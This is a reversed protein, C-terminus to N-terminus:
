AKVAEAIAPSQPARVGNLSGIRMLVFYADELTPAIKGFGGPVGGNPAYVRVHHRGEVLMEQTVVQQSRLEPLNEESKRRWNASNRKVPSASAMGSPM